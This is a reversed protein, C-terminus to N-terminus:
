STLEDVLGWELATAADVARGSFAMWATRVRGIRRPISVTGGAGPVLGLGIEPLSMTTSRDAAVHAAFAALEVGSGACPGHVHVSTRSRLEYLMRGLHRQLRIVHARAPDPRRGFEDLDGGSCFARGEGSLFVREITPDVEAVMLAQALEDRMRADLANLRDPRTLVIDLVEGTRSVRVRPADDTIPRAAHAARWAAFEPGSQLLSYTASEIVFGDAVARRSEGRLLLALSACAVPRQELHREVDTLAPDDPGVILDSLERWGEDVEALPVDTVTVIVMPLAIARFVLAEDPPRDGAGHHVVVSGSSELGDFGALKELLSRADM